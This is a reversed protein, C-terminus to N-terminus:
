SADRLLLSLILPVAERLFREVIDSEVAAFAVVARFVTFVVPPSAAGLSTVVSLCPSASLTCTCVLREGGLLFVFNSLFCDM